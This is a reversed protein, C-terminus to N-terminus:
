NNEADFFLEEINLYDLLEILCERNACVWWRGYLKQGILLKKALLTHAIDKSIFNRNCWDTLSAYNTKEIDVLQNNEEKYLNSKVRKAQLPNGNFASGSNFQIADM